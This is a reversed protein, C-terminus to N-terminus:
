SFLCVIYRRPESNCYIIRRVYLAYVHCLFTFLCLLCQTNKGGRENIREDHVRWVTASVCWDFPLKTPIHPTQQHANRCKSTNTGIHRRTPIRHIKRFIISFFKWILPCKPAFPFIEPFNNSPWRFYTHLKGRFIKGRRNRFVTERQSAM